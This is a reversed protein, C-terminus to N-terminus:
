RGIFVKLLVLSEILVIQQHNGAMIDITFGTWQEKRMEQQSEIDEYGHDVERLRPDEYIRINETGAKSGEILLDMTERSRFYPSRYILARRVFDPGIKAGVRLAQNKGVPDTIKVKYDAISGHKIEGANTQSQAHRVIKIM